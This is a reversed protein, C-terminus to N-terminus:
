TGTPIVLVAGPHIVDGDLNNVARLTSLSVQYRQAIVGLTDGSRVIHEQGTRNAAIWTGQPATQYFHDRVGRAIATAVQKRHRATNLNREDDPNSIFGVELLVSPVDPSRLVVFNAREVQKRHRRGVSGLQQFISEAALNSYEMTASQSLDLLVSSLMDDGRDLEVGGILDAQNENEALLRAAQSSAGSRSLVFVSSGRVRFDRFADAHVSLLLDAQAQRAREYRERLPIFYDGTRIMVARMGPSDNILQELERAIQLTIKKEYTGGPGIAGPDEGGHGADIAVIMDRKGNRRSEAAQRLREAASTAGEPILDIVLRHGYRGAPDLVFSQPEAPGNLDFVVRLDTGNRVGHRVRGIVGGAEEDFPLPGSARVNKIDVVLREPDSLTFIRYDVAQDLDLVARTSDPSSWVRLNHVEAASATSALVILLLAFAQKIVAM